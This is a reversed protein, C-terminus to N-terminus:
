KIFLEKMDEEIFQSPKWGKLLKDIFFSDLVGLAMTAAIGIGGTAVAGTVLGLGTFIAWRASKGPLKDILTGKTVEKYYERFLDQNPEKSALWEKFKSSKLILSIVDDIKVQKKNIAERLARADGFVFNQFQEINNRSKSAKQVLYSLKEEMLRASLPNTALESLYTSSFYLDSEADLLHALIFSPSLSSHSAPITQHYIANLKNFDINTHVVIGNDIKETIFFSKDSIKISPILTQIVVPISRNLYEQDLLSKRAGDTIIKDHHIVSIKNELRQAIRRGKGEKGTLEICQQRIIDQFLHQPSSFIVPDHVQIGNLTNTKIGTGSETYIIKLIHEEVLLNVQEMGLDRLLQKLIFENAIINTTRYFLMCELLMGIDLPNNNDKNQSRFSISEFM